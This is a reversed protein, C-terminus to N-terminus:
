VAPAGWPAGFSPCARPVVPASRLACWLCLSKQGCSCPTSSVVRVNEASLFWIRGRRNAQQAVSRGRRRLLCGPSLEPGRFGAACGSDMSLTGVLRPDVVICSMRGYCAAWIGLSAGAFGLPTANSMAEPPWCAHLYANSLSIGLPRAQLGDPCLAHRPCARM